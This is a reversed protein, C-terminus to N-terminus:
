SKAEDGKSGNGWARLCEGHVYTNESVMIPAYPIPEKCHDCTHPTNPAPLDVVVTKAAKVVAVTGAKSDISLDLGQDKLEQYSAFGLRIALTTALKAAFRPVAENAATMRENLSAAERVIAVVKERSTRYDHILRRDAKTLPETRVVEPPKTTPAPDSM